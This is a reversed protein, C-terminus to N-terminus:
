PSLLRAQHSASRGNTGAAAKMEEYEHELEAAFQYRNLFSEIKSVHRRGDRLSMVAVRDFGGMLPVQGKKFLLNEIRVANDKRRKDKPIWIQGTKLVPGTSAPKIAAAKKQKKAARIESAVARAAIERVEDRIFGRLGGLIRNFNKNERRKLEEPTM